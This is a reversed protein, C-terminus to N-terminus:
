RALCYDNLEKYLRVIESLRTNIYQKQSEIFRNRELGHPLNPVLKYSNALEHYNKYTVSEAIEKILQYMSDQKSLVAKDFSRLHQYDNSDIFGSMAFYVSKTFRNHLEYDVPVLQGEDNYKSLCIKIRELFKLVRNVEDVRNYTNKSNQEIYLKLAKRDIKMEHAMSHHTGCLAILNGIVNNERDFDIHHIQIYTKENCNSIECGHGARVQVSRKLTAPITPRAQEYKKM